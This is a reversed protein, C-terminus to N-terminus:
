ERNILHHMGRKIEKKKEDREGINIRTPNQKLSQNLGATM